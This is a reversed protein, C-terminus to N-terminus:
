KNTSLQLQDELVMNAQDEVLNYPAKNDIANKFSVWGSLAATVKQTISPNNIMPM